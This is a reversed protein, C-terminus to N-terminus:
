GRSSCHSGRYRFKSRRGNVSNCVGFGCQGCHTEDNIRTQFLDISAKDRLLTGRIRDVIGVEVNVLLEGRSLQETRRLTKGAFLTSM